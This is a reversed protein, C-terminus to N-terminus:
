DARGRWIGQPSAIAPLTLTFPSVVPNTALISVFASGVAPARELTFPRGVAAEVLLTFGGGPLIALQALVPAVPPTGGTTKLTMRTIRSLSALGFGPVGTISKGKDTLHNFTLEAVYTQGAKFTNAPITVGAADPPLLINQCPNPAQFVVNENADYITLSITESNTTAGAYKDWALLFAAAANISQATAQNAYHPVPPYGNAAVTVSASNTTQVQQNRLEFLYTGAPYNEDLDSRSPYQEQLVRLTSDIGGGLPSLVKLKFAFPNATPVKLTVITVGASGAGGPLNFFSFAAAGYEPDEAAAGPGAQLYNVQKSLFFAADPTNTVGGNACPDLGGAATFTGRATALANGAVDRFGAAGPVANLTWQVVVGPPWGGGTPNFQCILTTQTDNWLFTFKTTDLPYVQGNLTAQWQIANGAPNMPESFQFAVPQLPSNMFEKDAPSTLTLVPPITDTVGGAGTKLTFGTTSAFVARGSLLEGNEPLDLPGTKRFTLRGTFSQGAPLEGIGLSWEQTSADLDGTDVITQGSADTITLAVHDDDGAGAFQNWELTFDEGPDIAQVAAFNALQPAPPYLVAGINAHGSVTGLLNVAASFGYRGAPFATERAAETPFDQTVGYAGDPLKVATRTTGGPLTLTANKIPEFAAVGGVRAQFYFAEAGGTTVPAATGTQILRRGKTLEVQFDDGRALGACALCWVFAFLRKM